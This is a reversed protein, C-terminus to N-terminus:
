KVLVLKGDKLEYRNTVELTPISMPDNPGQTIMHVTIQGDKIAMALIRVRDGLLISAGHHPQGNENLVAALEYFTGSGGPNSVLVVAADAVGDGNLDGTAMTDSLTM